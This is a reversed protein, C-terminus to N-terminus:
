LDKGIEDLIVYATAGLALGGLYVGVAAAWMRSWWERRRQQLQLEHETPEYPEATLGFTERLNAM